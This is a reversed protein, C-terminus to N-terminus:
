APGGPAGEHNGAPSSSEPAPAPVPPTPGPAPSESAAAYDVYISGEILHWPILVSGSCGLHNTFRVMVGYQHLNLLLSDSTAWRTRLTGEPDACPITRFTLSPSDAAPPSDTTPSPSDAPSPSDGRASYPAGLAGLEADYKEGDTMEM